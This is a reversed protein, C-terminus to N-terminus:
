VLNLLEIYSKKLVAGILGSDSTGAVVTLSVVHDLVAVIVVIMVIDVVILPTGVNVVELPRAVM